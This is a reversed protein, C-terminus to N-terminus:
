PAIYSCPEVGDPAQGHTELVSHTKAVDVTTASLYTVGSADSTACVFLDPSSSLDMDAQQVFRSTDSRKPLVEVKKFCAFVNAPAGTNVVHWSKATEKSIPECSHATALKNSFVMLREKPIPAGVMLPATIGEAYSIEHVIKGPKSTDPDTFTATLIAVGPEHAFVQFTHGGDLTPPTHECRAGVCTVSLNSVPKVPCGEGQPIGVRVTSVTEVSRVDLNNMMLQAPGSRECALSGDATLDDKATNKSCGSTLASCAFLAVCAGYTMWSGNM